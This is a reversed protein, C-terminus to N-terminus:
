LKFVTGCAVDALDKLGFKPLRLTGCAVGAGRERGKGGKEDGYYTGIIPKMMTYMDYRSTSHPLFQQLCNPAALLLLLFCAFPPLVREDLAKRGTRIRWTHTGAHAHAHMTTLILKNGCVRLLRGGSSRKRATHQLVKEMSFTNWRRIM